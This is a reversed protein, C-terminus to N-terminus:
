VTRQIEHQLLLFCLVRILFERFCFLLFFVIKYNIISAITNWVKDLCVIRDRYLTNIKEYNKSFFILDHLMQVNIDISNNNEQKSLVILVLKLM